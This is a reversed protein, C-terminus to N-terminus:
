SLNRMPLSTAKALRQEDLLPYRQQPRYDALMPPEILPELTEAANL